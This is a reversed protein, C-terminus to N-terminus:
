HSSLTRRGVPSPESDGRVSTAKMRASIITVDQATSACRLCSPGADNLAFRQRAVLQSNLHTNLASTGLQSQPACPRKEPRFDRSKVLALGCPTSKTSPLESINLLYDKQDTTIGAVGQFRHAIVFHTDDTSALPTMPGPANWGKDVRGSACPIVGSCSFAEGPMAATM